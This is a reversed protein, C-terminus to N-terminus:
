DGKIQCGTRRSALAMSTSTPAAGTATTTSTPSSETDLAQEQTAVYRLHKRYTFASGIFAADLALFIFVAVFLIIEVVGNLGILLRAGLEIFNILFLVGAAVVLVSVVSQETFTSIVAFGSLFFMLVNIFCLFFPAGALGAFLFALLVFLFYFFAFAIAILAILWILRGTKHTM